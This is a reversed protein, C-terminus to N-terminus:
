DNTSSRTRAALIFYFRQNPLKLLFLWLPPYYLCSTFHSTSTTNNTTSWLISNDKSCSRTETAACRDLELVLLLCLYRWGQAALRAEPWALFCSGSGGSDAEFKENYKSNRKRSGYSVFSCNIFSPSGPWAWWNSNILWRMGSRHCRNVHKFSHRSTEWGWNLIIKM